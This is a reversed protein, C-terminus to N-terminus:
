FYRGIGEKWLAEMPIQSLDIVAVLSGITICM